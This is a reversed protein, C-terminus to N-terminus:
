RSALRLHVGGAIVDEQKGAADHVSPLAADVYVGLPHDFSGTEPDLWGPVTGRATAGQLGM